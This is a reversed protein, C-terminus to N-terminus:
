HTQTPFQYKNYCLEMGALSLLIGMINELIEDQPSTHMVVLHLSTLM